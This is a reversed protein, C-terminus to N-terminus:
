ANARLLWCAAPPTIGAPTEFAKLANGARLRVEILASDSLEGVARSLPGINLATRVADELTAGMHMVTDLKQLEIGTYGARTLISRLRDGDAFAFPGPAGLELPPQPPLLDRAAELPGHAWLNESLDRWCVFVLRGRPSLATRINAFAAAPDAFFMVGFRSFALDCDPQFPHASADAETFTVSVGEASARERAVRLMPKSIDIGCVRGSTGVAKALEISTAGCGCGLDLVREGQRAAAFPMLAATIFGLSRETVDSLTAWREGALGNWFEIQQANDSAM